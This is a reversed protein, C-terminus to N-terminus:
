EYKNRIVQQIANPLLVLVMFGYVKYNLINYHLSKLCFKWTMKKNNLRLYVSARMKYWLSIYSKLGKINKNENYLKEFSSDAIGNEDHLRQPKNRILHSNDLIFIAKSSKTYAIKYKCALKSWTILDEGSKVGLPFGGINEIANKSVVVASTWLPPHSCCAVEFYNELVGDIGSFQIKNIITKTTKGTSDMFQYNCAFVSCDPYKMSLEYQTQLYDPMWEDDADLFAILDYKAEKIGRNRAESVGSNNQHILRIRKDQFKFVEEPGNDTSGDDIVIIEYNSFTQNLVSEISQKIYNEKNYLPIIVSIM